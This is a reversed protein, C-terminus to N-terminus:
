LGYRNWAPLMLESSILRKLTPIDSYDIDKGEFYSSIDAMKAIVEDLSSVEKNLQILKRRQEVMLSLLGRHAYEPYLYEGGNGSFQGIRQTINHVESRKNYPTTTTEDDIEKEMEDLASFLRNFKYSIELDLKDVAEQNTYDAIVKTKYDEYTKLGGIAFIVSILWIVLKSDLYSLYKFYGRKKEKEKMIESMVEARYTETLKIKEKEYESLM